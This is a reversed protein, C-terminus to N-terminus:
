LETYIEDYTMNDRLRIARAYKVGVETRYFSMMKKYMSINLDLFENKYHNQRKPNTVFDEFVKKMLANANANNFILLTALQKKSQSNSYKLFEGARSVKLYNNLQEETIKASLITTIFILVLLFIKKM